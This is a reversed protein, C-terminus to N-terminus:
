SAASEQVCAAIKIMGGPIVEPHRAILTQLADELTEGFLGEKLQREPMTRLAEEKILFVQNSKDPM